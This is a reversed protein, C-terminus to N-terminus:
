RTVEDRDDAPEEAEVEALYNEVAIGALLKILAVHAPLLGTSARTLGSAPSTQPPQSRM